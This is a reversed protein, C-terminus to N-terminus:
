EIEQQFEVLPVHVVASQFWFSHKPNSPFMLNELLIVREVNSRWSYHGRGGPCRKGIKVSAEWGTRIWCISAVRYTKMSNSFGVSM